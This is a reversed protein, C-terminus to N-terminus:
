THISNPMSSSIIDFLLLTDSKNEPIWLTNQYYKQHEYIKDVEDLLNFLTTVALKFVPSEDDM